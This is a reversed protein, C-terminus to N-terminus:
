FDDYDIVFDKQNDTFIMQSYHITNTSSIVVHDHEIVCEDLERIKTEDDSWEKFKECLEKATPRNELDKSWSREMIDAYFRPIVKDVLPRFGDLIKLVQSPIDNMDYRNTVPEDYLVEWMIMGFSYIDSEITYAKKELVEPAVFPLIGYVQGDNEKMYQISLGLDAIYASNLDDQLINGSHLDRHVIGNSHIARLDYCISLLLNLRSNWSEKSLEDLNDHLSGSSAYKLVLIYKGEQNRSIGHCKMFSPNDVGIECYAKVKIFGDNEIM